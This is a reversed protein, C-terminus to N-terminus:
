VLLRRSKFPPEAEGAGDSSGRYICRTFCSFLRVGILAPPPCCECVSSCIYDNGQAGTIMVRLALAVVCM